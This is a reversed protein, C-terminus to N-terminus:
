FLRVEGEGNMNAAMYLVLGLPMALATVGPFILLAATIISSILLVSGSIM